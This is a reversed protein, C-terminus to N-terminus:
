NCCNRKKKKNKNKLIFSVPEKICEEGEENVEKPMSDYMKVLSTFIDDIGDGNFASVLAFQLNKEKAYNMAEEENVEEQAFLDM